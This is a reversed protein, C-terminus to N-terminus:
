KKQQLNIFRNCSTRKFIARIAFLDATKRFTTNSTNAKSIIKLLLEIESNAFITDVIAFGQNSIEQQIHTSTVM